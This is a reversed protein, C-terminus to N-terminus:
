TIFYVVEPVDYEPLYKAHVLLYANLSCYFKDCSVVVVIAQDEIPIPVWAPEEIIALGMLLCCM